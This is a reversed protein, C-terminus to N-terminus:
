QSYVFIIHKSIESFNKPWLDPFTESFIATFTATLLIRAATVPRWTATLKAQNLQSLIQCCQSSVATLGPLNFNVLWMGDPTFNPFVAQWWILM